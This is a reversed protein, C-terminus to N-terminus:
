SLDNPVEKILPGMKKIEDRLLDRTRRHLALAEARIEESPYELMPVFVQAQVATM